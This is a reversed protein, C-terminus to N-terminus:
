SQLFLPAICVKCNCSTVGCFDADASGATSTSPEPSRRQKSRPFLCVCLIVFLKSSIDERWPELAFRRSTCRDGASVASLCLRAIFMYFRKNANHNQWTKPAGPDEFKPPSFAPHTILLITALPKQRSRPWGLDLLRMHM